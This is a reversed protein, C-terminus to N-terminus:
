RSGYEADSIHEGWTTEPGQGEGAAEWMALHTMFHEPAAGHWHWEGPPTYVTDGPKM